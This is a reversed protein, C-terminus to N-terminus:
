MTVPVFTTRELASSGSATFLQVTLYKGALLETRADEERLLPCIGLYRMRAPSVIWEVERLACGYSHTYNAYSLDIELQRRATGPEHGGYATVLEHRKGERDLFLASPAAYVDTVIQPAASDWVSMDLPYFDTSVWLDAAEVLGFYFLSPVGAEPHVSEAGSQTTKDTRVAFYWSGSVALVLVAASVITILQKRLTHRKKDPRQPETSPILDEDIEGLANMLQESFKM